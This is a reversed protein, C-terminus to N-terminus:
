KARQLWVSLVRAVQDLSDGSCNAPVDSLRHWHAYDFDIVDIAPIGARNLPLHDDEVAFKSFADGRFATCKLDKAVGWVERVLGSAHRWSNQEIPFKANKGGVMDLLIAAAYVTKSKALAKRYEAAFHKSGHFYEDRQNDFIFEEGDFFVFDIGVTTKLGKLHHALEMLLAVGSGGDNASIFPERWHRENPEQDAIPRTDYHSCLIVRRTREPYWSVILNAMDTAKRTSKPTASFRQYTVKGGLAEFHKQLLEQQKKMGASGSLRPGIKCVAELYGMARKADFPAPEPFRDAAFAGPQESTSPDTEAPAASTSWPRSMFWGGLVLLALALLALASLGGVLWPTPSRRLNPLPVAPRPRPVPATAIGAPARKAARVV